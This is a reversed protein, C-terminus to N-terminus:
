NLENGSTMCHHFKACRRLDPSLVINWQKSGYM